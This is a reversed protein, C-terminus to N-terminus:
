GFLKKWLPRANQEEQEKLKKFISRNQRRLIMITEQLEKLQDTKTAEVKEAEQGQHTLLATLRKQQEQSQTLNNKLNEIQEALLEREREREERTQSREDEMNRLRERLIELEIRIDGGNVAQSGAVSGQGRGEAQRFFPLDRTQPEADNATERQQKDQEIEELSRLKDGYVRVLESVDIRPNNDDDKEVSIGKKEIHRYLTARTVGAMEAAQSINVKM